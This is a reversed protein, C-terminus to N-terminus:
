ILIDSYWILTTLNDSSPDLDIPDFSLVPNDPLPLLVMLAPFGLKLQAVQCPLWCNKFDNGHFDQFLTIAKNM